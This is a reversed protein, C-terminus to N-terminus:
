LSDWLYRSFNMHLLLLMLIDNISFAIVAVFLIVLFVFVEEFKNVNSFAIVAVFLIVLFVFVEEFKNVNISFAIVTVFLIVLFVFVEEFKNLM